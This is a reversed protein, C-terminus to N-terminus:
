DPVLEYNQRNLTVTRGFVNVLVGNKLEATLATQANDMLKKWSVPAPTNLSASLFAITFFGGTDNYIGFQGNRSGDGNDAPPRKSGSIDVDGTQYLLLRSLANTAPAAVTFPSITFPTLSTANSCTDSILVTQRARKGKMLKWVDSRALVERNSKPNPAQFFHTRDNFAGGHCAIYVFLVDNAAVNAATLEQQLKPLGFEGDTLVKIKPTALHNEQNGSTTDVCQAELLSEMMRANARAGTAIPNAKGGSVPRTDAMIFVHVKNAVVNPAAAISAISAQNHTPTRSDIADLRLALQDALDIAERLDDKITNIIASQGELDSLGPSDPSSEFNELSKAGDVVPTDTRDSDVEVKSEPPHETLNPPTEETQPPAEEVKPEDATSSIPFICCALGALLYPRVRFSMM